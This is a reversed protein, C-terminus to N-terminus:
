IEGMEASSSLRIDPTILFVMSMIVDCGGQVGVGQIQGHMHAQLNIMTINQETRILQNIDTKGRAAKFVISQLSESSM